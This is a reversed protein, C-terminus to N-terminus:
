APLSLCAEVYRGRTYVFLEAKPYQSIIKHASKLGIGHVSTYDDEAQKKYVDISMREILDDTATNRILFQVNNAEQFVHIHVTPYECDSAAQIANDVLIGLMRCLDSEKMKFRDYAGEVFLLAPVGNTEAFRLKESLLGRISGNSLKQLNLTNDNNILSFSSSIESNYQRIRKIDGEAVVGQWGYIMNAIDHRFTRMEFLFAAISEQTAGLARNRRELKNQAVDRVVSLLLIFLVLFVFIIVFIGEPDGYMEKDTVKWYWLGLLIIATATFSLRLWLPIHLLLRVWGKLRDKLYLCLMTLLLLILGGVLNLKLAPFALLEANNFVSKEEASILLGSSLLLLVESIEGAILLVGAGKWSEKWVQAFIFHAFLIYELFLFLIHIKMGLLYDVVLGAFIMGSGILWKKVTFDVNLFAKGAIMYALAVICRQVIWLFLILVTM